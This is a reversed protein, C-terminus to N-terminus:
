SWWSVLYRFVLAWCKVPWLESKYWNRILEDGLIWQLLMRDDKRFLLKWLPKRLFIASYANIRRSIYCFTWDITVNDMQFCGTLHVRRVRSNMQWAFLKRSSYKTASIFSHRVRINLTCASHWLRTTPRKENNHISQLNSLRKFHHVQDAYYVNISGPQKGWLFCM